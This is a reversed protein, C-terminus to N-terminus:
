TLFIEWVISMTKLIKLIVIKLASVQSLKDSSLWNKSLSHSEKFFLARNAQLLSTNKVSSKPSLM